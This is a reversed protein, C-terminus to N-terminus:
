RAMRLYYNTLDVNVLRGRLYRPKFERRGRPKNSRQYRPEQASDRYVTVVLNGDLVVVIGCAGMKRVGDAQEELVDGCLAVAEITPWSIDRYLMQKRAHNTYKIDSM